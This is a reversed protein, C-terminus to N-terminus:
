KIKNMTAHSGGMYIMATYMKGLKGTRLRCPSPVNCVGRQGGGLVTGLSLLHPGLFNVVSVVFSLVFSFRLRDRLGRRGIGHVLTHSPVSATGGRGWDPERCWAGGGGGGAGRGAGPVGSSVSQCRVQPTASKWLASVEGRGYVLPLGAGGAWMEWRCTSGPDEMPEEVKQGGEAKGGVPDETTDEIGSVGQLPPIENALPVSVVLVPLHPPGRGLAPATRHPRARDDAPLVKLRAAQHKRCGHQRAQPKGCSAPPITLPLLASSLM